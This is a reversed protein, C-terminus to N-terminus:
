TSLSHQQQADSQLHPATESACLVPLVDVAVRDISARLQVNRVREYPLAGVPSCSPTGNFMVLSPHSLNDEGRVLHLVVRESVICVLAAKTAVDGIKNYLGCQASKSPVDFRSGPKRSNAISSRESPMGTDLFASNETALQM